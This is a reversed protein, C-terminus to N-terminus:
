SVVVREDSRATSRATAQESLAGFVAGLMTWLTIQLGLSRLRFDWVLDAPVDHVPAAAPMVAYAGAVLVLALLTVGGQRQWALVGRRALARSAAFAGSTVALGLAMCLFYASTRTDLTSEDGVGPPNAPYRLFPILYLAVFGGLALALSRAWPRARLDSPLVRYALAYLAGLALGVLVLGLVLGAKQTARSFLEDGGAPELAIASDLTPEAFLLALLGTVLGAVAGALLGRLLVHKLPLTVV